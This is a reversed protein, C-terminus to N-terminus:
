IMSSGGDVVLSHGTIFQCDDAALFLAAAAIEEPKGMRKQLTGKTYKKQLEENVSAIQAYLPTDVPGPCINNVNIGFRAVERALAKTFGIVGGKSASYAVQMGAGVLGAISAINIIKGYRQQMMTHLVAQTFHMTGKLNVAIVKDWSAEDSELFSGIDGTGACNVLIDIRGCSSLVQQVAQNIEQRNTVDVKIAIAEGGDSNIEASVRRAAQEDVDTVVVRAGEKAFVKCTAAGIGSGGGTVIAVKGKLSQGGDKSKM